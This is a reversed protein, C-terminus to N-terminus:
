EFKRFQIDSIWVQWIARDRFEGRNSYRSVCLLLGSAALSRLKRLLELVARQVM